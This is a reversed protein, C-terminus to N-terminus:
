PLEGAAWLLAASRVLRAAHAGWLEPARGAAGAWRATTYVGGPRARLLGAGGGAPPPPAGGGGGPGRPEVGGVEGGMAGWRGGRRVGGAVGHCGVQWGM